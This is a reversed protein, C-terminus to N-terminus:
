TKAVTSSYLHSAYQRAFLLCVATCIPLTNARKKLELFIQFPTLPMGVFPMPLFASLTMFKLTNEPHKLSMKLSKEPIKLTNKLSMKLSKEPHKERHGKWRHGKWSHGKAGKLAFVQLPQPNRFMASCLHRISCRILQCAHSFVSGSKIIMTITTRM